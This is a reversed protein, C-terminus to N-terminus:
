KKEPKMRLSKMIEKKAKKSLRLEDLLKEISIIKHTIVPERKKM